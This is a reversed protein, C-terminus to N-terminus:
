ELWLRLPKTVTNRGNPVNKWVEEVWRIKALESRDM